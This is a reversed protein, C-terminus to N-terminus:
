VAKAINLTPNIGMVQVVESRPYNHTGHSGNKSESDFGHETLGTVRLWEKANRLRVWDGVGFVLHKPEEPPSEISAIQSLMFFRPQLEEERRAQFVSGHQEGVVEYVGPHDILRLRTGIKLKPTTNWHWDPTHKVQIKDNPQVGNEPVGRVVDGLKADRLKNELDRLGQVTAVNAYESAFGADKLMGDLSTTGWRDDKGKRYEQTWTLFMACCLLHAAHPLGTEEDNDEGQQIANLHREAAAILRSYSIGKRWNHEGYKKAGFTLVKALQEMAYGDILDFRPKESDDKKGADKGGAFLDKNAMWGAVRPNSYEGPGNKFDSEKEWGPACGAQTRKDPSKKQLTELGVRAKQHALRAQKMAAEAQSILDLSQKFKQEAHLLDPNILPM